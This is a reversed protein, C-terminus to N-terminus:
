KIRHEHDVLLSGIVKNLYEPILSEAHDLSKGEILQITQIGTFIFADLSDIIFIAKEIIVHYIKL